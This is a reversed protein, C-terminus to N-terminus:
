VVVRYIASAIAALLLLIGGARVYDNSSFVISAMLAAGFILNILIWREVRVWRPTAGAAIAIAWAIVVDATWWLSMVTDPVPNSVRPPTQTDRFVLGISGLVDHVGFWLHLAFFLWAATWFMLWCAGGAKRRLIFASIAPILLLISVFITNITLYYWVDPTSTGKWPNGIPPLHGSSLWRQMQLAQLDAAWWAAAAVLLVLVGVAIFLHRSPM